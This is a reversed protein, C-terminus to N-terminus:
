NEKDTGRYKDMSNPYLEIKDINFEQKNIVRHVGKIKETLANSLAQYIKESSQESDEEYQYLLPVYDDDNKYKKEIELFKVPCFKDIKAFLNVRMEDM